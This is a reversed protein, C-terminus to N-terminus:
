RLRLGGRICVSALYVGRELMAHFFRNFADKDCEWSRPTRRLPVARFYLGFMGEWLSRRSRLAASARPRVWARACRVRQRPLVSM